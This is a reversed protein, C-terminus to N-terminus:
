RLKILLGIKPSIPTSGQSVNEIFLEVGLSLNPNDFVHKELYPTMKLTNNRIKNEKSFIFYTVVRGKEFTLIEYYFVIRAILHPHVHFIHTWVQWSIALGQAFFAFVFNFVRIFFLSYM